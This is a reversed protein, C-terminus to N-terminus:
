PRAPPAAPMDLSAGPAAYTPLAQPVLIVVLGYVILVAAAGYVATREWALSKEAFIILTLVAMAAINMIGLPFLIVFLLWCCGLCYGGHILGMLLAGFNGERWSTLIFAVPSRCHSLCIYKFPTLQYLGAVVLLVGAIAAADAAPLAIEAAIAEAGRAGLYAVLGAASWVVLYGAVFLWTSVFPDGRERKGSQIRHFTLVMPAATPFMMAVMMIVWMALFAPAPLGMTPMAVAMGPDAGGDHMLLLAWAGAAAGLLLLLVLNRQTPLSALSWRGM